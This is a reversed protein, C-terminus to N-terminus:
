FSYSCFTLSVFHHLARNSSNLINDPFFIMLLNPFHSLPDFYKNQLRSCRLTVGTVWMFLWHMQLTSWVTTLHSSSVLSDSLLKQCALRFYVSCYCFCCYLSQRLSPPLHSNVGSFTRQGRSTHRPYAFLCM